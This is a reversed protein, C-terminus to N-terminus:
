GAALAVGLAATQGDFEPAPVTGFGQTDSGQNGGHNQALSPSSLYLAAAGGLVAFFRTKMTCGWHFLVAVANRHM